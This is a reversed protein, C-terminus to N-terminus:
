LAGETVYDEFFKGITEPNTQNTKSAEDLLSSYQAEDGQAKAKLAKEVDAVSVGLADMAFKDKESTTLERSSELKQYQTVLKALEKSRGVTLKYDNKLTHAILGEQLEEKISAIMELDKSQGQTNSFRFGGGTYFTYWYSTDVWYSGVWIYEVTYDEVWCECWEDYYEYYDYDTIYEDQWYGDQIYEEKQELNLVIDVGEVAGNALFESYTSNDKRDWKKMNYAEYEGTTNNKYVVYDGKETHLKAIDYDHGTEAELAKMFDKADKKHGCSVFFLALMMLSVLKKM